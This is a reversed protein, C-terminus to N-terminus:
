RKEVPPPGPVPKPILEPTIKKPVGRGPRALCTVQFSAKESELQSPYTVKLVMWGSPNPLSPGGLKWTTQVANQSANFTANVAPASAGDSRVFTYSVPTPHYDVSIKGLFVITAPCPGEYKPPVAKWEISTAQVKEITVTTTVKGGQVECSPSPPSTVTVTSTGPANFAAPGLTAPLTASWTTVSPGGGWSGGVFDFKLTCPGGTGGVTFTVPEGVKVKSASPSLGTIQGAAEAGAPVLALFVVLMAAYSRKM